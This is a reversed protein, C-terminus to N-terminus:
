SAFVLARLLNMFDVFNLIFGTREVFICILLKGSFEGVQLSAQLRSYSKYPSSVGGQVVRCIGLFYQMHFRNEERVRAVHRYWM